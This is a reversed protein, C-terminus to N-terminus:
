GFSLLTERRMHHLFINRFTFTVGPALQLRNSLYNLHLSPWADKFTPPSTVTVNREIRQPPGMLPWNNSDVWLSYLLEIHHVDPDALADRLGNVTAVQRVLFSREAMLRRATHTLHTGRFNPLGGRSGLDAALLAQAMNRTTANKAQGAVVSAVALLCFVLM